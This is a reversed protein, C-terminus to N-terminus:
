TEAGGGLWGGVAGAPAVARHHHAAGRESEGNGPTESESPNRKRQDRPKRPHGCIPSELVCRPAARRSPPDVRHTSDIGGIIEAAKLNPHAILDRLRHTKRSGNM